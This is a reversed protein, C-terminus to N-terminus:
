PTDFEEISGNINFNVTGATSSDNTFAEIKDGTSLLYDSSMNAETHTDLTNTNHSLDLISIAGAGNPTIEIFINATLQTTAATIRQIFATLGKVKASKNPPVTYSVRSTKLAPGFTNTYSFDIPLISGKNYNYALRDAITQLLDNRVGSANTIRM